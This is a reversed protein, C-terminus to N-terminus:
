VSANWRRRYESVIDVLAIDDAVHVVEFTDCLSETSISAMELFWEPVGRDAPRAAIFQRARGSIALDLSQPYFQRLNGHDDSYSWAGIPGLDGDTHVLVHQM